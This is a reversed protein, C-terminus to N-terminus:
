DCFAEIQMDTALLWRALPDSVAGVDAETYPPRTLWACPESPAACGSAFVTAFTMALFAPFM